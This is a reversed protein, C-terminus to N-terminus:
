SNPPPRKTFHAIVSFTSQAITSRAECIKCAPQPSRTVLYEHTLRTYGMRLRTRLQHRRKEPTIKHPLIIKKVKSLKTDTIDWESQWAKSQINNLFPKMDHIVTTTMSLQELWIISISKYRFFGKLEM